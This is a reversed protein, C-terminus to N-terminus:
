SVVPLRKPNVTAGNSAIVKRYWRASDKLTRQQTKYDVYILGFRHKYGEAWEFNDMISWHFYGKVPVGDHIVRRLESLYREMFDIRLPDHVRGDLSVWDMSSLGNETIVIPCKYREYILRPGWYLAGPTVKWLFLTHPHGPRLNVTEYPAKKAARLVKASYINMGFFDMPQRILEMDGPQVKPALDGYHRLGDEPYRGFFIPDSWWTYSWLGNGANVYARAARIDAPRDTAPVGVNGCPAWGIVPAQRASSRIAQVARGHAMLAHHAATLVEHTGLKDGPAHMGTELGLGIFCPPENLTMWHTVRDSLKKVVVDAYAGFWEVSDRNLWGGRLYLAHPFDWHFLTVWPEIGAALLGDVLRDYLDLGKRNVAGVGSPMVRPWSVSLRYAQLGVQKMLGIDEKWRHYHDCAVDGTHGEWIRNPRRCMMDWVSLGKGDERAAGEIQYSAAAAGWTFNKPFLKPNSKM